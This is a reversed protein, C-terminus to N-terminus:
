LISNKETGNELLSTINEVCFHTPTDSPLPPVVWLNDKLAVGHGVSLSRLGDLCSVSLLISHKCVEPGLALTKFDQILNTFLSLGQGQQLFTSCTLVCKVFYSRHLDSSLSVCSGLPQTTSVIIDSLGSVKPQFFVFVSM